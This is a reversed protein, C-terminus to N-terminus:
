RARAGDPRRAPLGHRAGLDFINGDNLWQAQVSEFQRSISAKFCVFVLGRDTGDDEDRGRPLPPGYPMGRRIM